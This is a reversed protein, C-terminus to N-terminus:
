SPPNPKQHIPSPPKPKKKKKKKKNLIYIFSLVQLKSVFGIVWVVGIVLFM